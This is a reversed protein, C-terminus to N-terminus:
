YQSWVTFGKAEYDKICAKYKDYSAMNRLMDVTCEETEGTKNDMLITRSHKETFSACGALLLALVLCFIRPM